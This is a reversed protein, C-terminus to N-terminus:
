ERSGVLAVFLDHRQNATAADVCLGVLLALAIASASTLFASVPGLNAERRLWGHLAAGAPLLALWGFSPVWSVALWGALYGTASVYARLPVSRAFIASVAAIALTLVVLAAPTTLWMGALRVLPGVIRLPEGDQTELVRDIALVAGSGLIRISMGILAFAVAPAVPGERPAGVLSDTARTIIMRM